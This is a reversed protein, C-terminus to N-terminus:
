TLLNDQMTARMNMELMKRRTQERLPEIELIAIQVRRAPPQRVAPTPKRLMAHLEHFSIEGSSDADFQDFLDDAQGVLISILGLEPLAARFQACRAWFPPHSPPPPIPLLRVHSSNAESSTSCDPAITNCIVEEKSIIGDGNLDWRRFLGVVREGRAVLSARLQETPNASKKASTKTKASTPSPNAM